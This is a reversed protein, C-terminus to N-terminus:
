LVEKKGVGKKRAASRMGEGGDVLVCVENGGVGVEFERKAYALGEADFSGPQMWVGRIGAEKAQVM